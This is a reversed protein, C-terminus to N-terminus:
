VPLVKLTLHYVAERWRRRREAADRELARLFAWEKQEADYRRLARSLVRAARETGYLAGILNVASLVAIDARM